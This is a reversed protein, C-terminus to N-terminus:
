PSLVGFSIAILENSMLFGEPDSLRLFAVEWRRRQGGGAMELEFDCTAVVRKEEDMAVIHGSDIYPRWARCLSLKMAEGFFSEFWKLDLGRATRMSLMVMDMATEKADVIAVDDDEEATTKMELKKVYQEYEKLRRPRSFRVGNIFSASGLGFGYFPRNQWYTQNHQCEHGPKCYSSIEYHEYGAKSLKESAMKYFYASQSETPLPFEGPTYLKAFKTGQEVQLDYISVHQPRASVALRLSEEWMEETLHPLSSILDLSWSEIGRCGAVLEIAEDVEGRGHARGCAQLLEEQFAQVGLSVRNVGVVGVMEDLRRADFTGPDMEMSVEADAALEGFKARIAELVSRVLRPPVLSPTGGGFYVTRIPPHLSSPAKAASIEHLLFRIYTSIRPDDDLRHSSSGLAVIPFDCYHCRRRCFPLHIYAAEPLPPRPLPLPISTHVDSSIRCVATLCPLLSTSPTPSFKSGVRPRHPLSLLPYLQFNMSRPMEMEKQSAEAGPINNREMCNSSGTSDETHHPNLARRLNTDDQSNAGFSKWSNNGGM